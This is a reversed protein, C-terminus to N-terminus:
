YSHCPPSGFFWFGYGSLHWRGSSRSDHRAFKPAARLLSAFRGWDRLGSAVYVSSQAIHRPGFEPFFLLGRNRGRCGRLWGHVTWNARDRGCLDDRDGRHVIAMNFERPPACEFVQGEFFLSCHRAGGGFIGFDRCLCWKQRTLDLDSYDRLLIHRLWGTEAPVPRPSILQTQYALAEPRGHRRFAAQMLRIPRVDVQWFVSRLRRYLLRVAM